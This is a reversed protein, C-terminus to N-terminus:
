FLPTMEGGQPIINWSLLQKWPITAKVTMLIVTWEVGLGVGHIRRRQYVTAHMNWQVM